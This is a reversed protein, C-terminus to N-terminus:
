FFDSLRSLTLFTIDARTDSMYVQLCSLCFPRGLFMFVTAQQGDLADQLSVGGLFDGLDKADIWRDTRRQTAADRSPPRVSNVRGPGDGPRGGLNVRVWSFITRRQNASLGLSCPNSVSNHVAEASSALQDLLLETDPELGLYRLTHSRSRPNVGCFGAARGGRARGSPSRRM